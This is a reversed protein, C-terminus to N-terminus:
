LVERTYRVVADIEEPTLQTSMAPMTGSGNSVLAIQDDLDPFREVVVGALKLGIGGQGAAGHCSACSAIWVERGTLLEADDADAGEPMPATKDGGGGCGVVFAGAVLAPAVVALLKSGAAVVM